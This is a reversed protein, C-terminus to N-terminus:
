LYDERQRDSHSVACALASIFPSFVAVFQHLGWGVLMLAVGASTWTTDPEFDHWDVDTQPGAM